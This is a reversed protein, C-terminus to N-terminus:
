RKKADQTVEPALDSAAGRRRCSDSAASSRPPPPTVTIRPGRLRQVGSQLEEFFPSFYNTNQRKWVPKAMSANCLIDGQGGRVISGTSHSLCSTGECESTGNLKREDLIQEAAGWRRGAGTHSLHRVGISHQEPRGRADRRRGTGRRAGRQPTDRGAGTFM